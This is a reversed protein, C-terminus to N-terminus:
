NELLNIELLTKLRDIDTFDTIHPDHEFRNGVLIFSFGTKLCAARDWVGDGFYCRSTVPRTGCAKEMASQMIKERSFHDDSSSLVIGSIDVGAASLKSRATDEYGGTAIALTIDSYSKLYKLFEGAGKIERIPNHQSEISDNILEVFVSKFEDHLANQNGTVRNRELIEYFIGSDTTHSFLSWDPNISFGLVIELAKLYCETDMQNSDVLTGDVDFMVLYKTEAMRNKM